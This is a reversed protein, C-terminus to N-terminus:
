KCDLLWPQLKLQRIRRATRFTSLKTAGFDNTIGRRLPEGFSGTLNARVTVYQATDTYRDREVNGDTDLM